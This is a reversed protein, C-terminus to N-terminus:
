SAMLVDNKIAGYPKTVANAHSKNTCTESLVFKHLSETCIHIIWIYM